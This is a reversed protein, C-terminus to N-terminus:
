QPVQQGNVTVDRLENPVVAVAYRNTVVFEAPDVNPPLHGCIKEPMKDVMMLLYQQVPKDPGVSFDVAVAEMKGAICANAFEVTAIVGSWNAPDMVTVGPIGNEASVFELAKILPKEANKTPLIPSDEQAMVPGTVAVMASLLILNKMAAFM